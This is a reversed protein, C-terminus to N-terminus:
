YLQAEHSHVERARGSAIGSVTRLLATARHICSRRTLLQVPLSAWINGALWADSFRKGGSIADPLPLAFVGYTLDSSDSWGGASSHCQQLLIM